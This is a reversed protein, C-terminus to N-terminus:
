PQVPRCVHPTSPAERRPCKAWQRAERLPGILRTGHFALLRLRIRLLTCDGGRRVFCWLATGFWLPLRLCAGLIMILNALWEHLPGRTKRLFLLLGERKRQTSAAPLPDASAGGHHIIRAQPYYCIRWGGKRIRWCWEAEEGYMFFDEDLMGVQAIVESRVLFFCGAVVDLDRPETFIQGWYRARRSRNKPLAGDIFLADTLVGPLDAFRFYTFQFRGDAWEARCGVVGITPEGDAFSVCRQIAGDLVVTDSNLLLVYRGRALPMAQNNAAAFGRNETNAILQVQPFDAAIAEVSGDASANDVVFVEFSVERTQAYVSRLCALIMERTNYSVIIVSVDVPTSVSLPERAVNM